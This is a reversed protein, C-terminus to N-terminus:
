ARTSAAEWKRQRGKRLKLMIRVAAAAAFVVRFQLRCTFRTRVAKTDWLPQVSIRPVTYMTLYHSFVSVIISKVGYALGTLVGTAAADGAGMVTNWEIQKCYVRRLMQRVIPQLDHIQELWYHYQHSWKQVTEWGIVKHRHKEHEDGVRAVIEPQIDDMHFKLIPVEKKVRILGFWAKVQVVLHDNDEIRRYTIQIHLPTLIILVLLGIIGALLWWGFM